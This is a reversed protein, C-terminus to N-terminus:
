RKHSRMYDTEFSKMGEFILNPSYEFDMEDKFLESIVEAGGGTVFLDFPGFNDRYKRLFGRVAETFMGATGWLISETTSKGPWTAPMRYGAAPLSPLKESISERILTLGPMIVGGRYVGDSTMIDVTCASGSDIVVVHKESYQVAGYCVLFRDAGLTEPTLYDLLHMPIADVSIMKFNGGSYKKKLVQTIRRVVSSAVIKQDKRKELWKYFDAEGDMKDRFCINWEAGNKEAAKIYSNGIDIYLTRM